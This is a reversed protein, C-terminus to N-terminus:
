FKKQFHLAIVEYGEREWFKHAKKNGIYCNLESAVCGNNKAFADIWVMLDQGINQSQYEPLLIVNDAEIHKGVYYKTLIWLGCIGVLKNEDFIGACYYHQQIMEDLREKLVEESVHGNLVQLLPIITYINRAEILEIKIKKM